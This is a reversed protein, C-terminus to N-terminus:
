SQDALLWGDVIRADRRVDKADDDWYYDLKADEAVKRDPYAGLVRGKFDVLVYVKM